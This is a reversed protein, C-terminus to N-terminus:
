SGLRREWVGELRMGRQVLSAPAGAKARHTCKAWLLEAVAQSLGAVDTDLEISIIICAASSSHCRITAGQWTRVSATGAADFSRM